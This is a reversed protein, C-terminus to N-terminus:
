DLKLIEIEGLDLERIGQEIKSLDGVIVWTWISPDIYREAATNIDDINMSRYKAPLNDLFDDERDFSVIGSLGSMLSGFTEFDGILGLSLDNVIAELEENKAPNSSLYEDYERIIEQISDVTKDTQVPASVLMPRPGKYQSLRTRVGYSWSKDERLNMNLRSTFSGGIVRNMLDIDIEDPTRMGPMLQGAVILSQVAGPKDILFVRRSDPEKNITYVLQAGKLMRNEPWSGFQAELTPLIEDLNTDGVLILTGNSPAIFRNKYNILDDRSMWQISERTGNGSFPKAYPHDEGYLIEPILNSVMGNPTSLSQDIAALWRIKKRDIEEQDFTPETIVEFMIEISEEFSSKLSSINISSSDLGTSTYLDTGLEELQDSLELANFSKSGETLMSMTFNALGPQGLPDTAHGSKIQFSLNIMPVDHREALVVELGNSLKARQIEPLDLEPFETPFPLKSRDATSESDYSRNEEPIVTLVYAGDTLWNNATEKIEKNTIEMIGNIFELYAGPNGSYVESYALLDSKGGFGGVRQLGKISSARISTKTNKLRKASPGKKIFDSLAKDMADELDDLSRGNALDVAIWFQGAIERDYYFASVSTALQRKYVLEQYLASNKGGTLLSALLEFHAHEPSGIEPTNWVKYIRANPVRDYMIERKEGSRKAIWKKKKIPSPGPPIDGFYKTVIKKAEDVNIDGALSLVANNPGYYTKFWLQVDELTAANLDEMSGITTWSYPHGVPFTAKSAQIFVRGYPQNEGQRKENQVVGRQEDLKEQNVVGLLHGMRDSEMWLALDLAPTPVNEFYNTRDNNTTGNMNTAGVQQFPGFYENNYNETGNFMLHEFLHAFGTKGPLEDKSGVHYWVNVAVVPIKRDEHVIVRLGNPLTFKDYKIDPLQESAIVSLPSFVIVFYLFYKKFITM